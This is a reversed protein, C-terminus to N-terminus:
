SFTALNFTPHIQPVAISGSWGIADGDHWEPDEHVYSVFLIMEPDDAIVSCMLAWKTYVKQRM